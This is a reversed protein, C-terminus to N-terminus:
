KNRTFTRYCVWRGWIENKKGGFWWIEFVWHNAPPSKNRVIFDKSICFTGIISCFQGIYTNKYSNILNNGNSFVQLM